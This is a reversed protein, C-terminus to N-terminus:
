SVRSTVRGLVRDVAVTGFSRSDAGEDPNDSTLFIRGSHISGVRKIVTKDRVWPHAAVVIDGPVPDAVAYASPDVLLHDGPRVAPLMSRGTARYRRRRGTAWLLLEWVSPREAGLSFGTTRAAKRRGSSRTTKIM